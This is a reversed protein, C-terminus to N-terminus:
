NKDHAPTQPQHFGPFFIFLILAWLSIKRNSLNSLNGADSASPKTNGFIWGGFLMMAALTLLSLLM